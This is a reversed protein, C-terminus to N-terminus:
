NCTLLFAFTSGRSTVVLEFLFLSAWGLRYFRRKLQVICQIRFGLQFIRVGYIQPEPNTRGDMLSAVHNVQIYAFTMNDYLIGAAMARKFDFSSIACLV